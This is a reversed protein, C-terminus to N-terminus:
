ENSSVFSGILLNQMQLLFLISIDLNAVNAALPEVPDAVQLPVEDLVHDSAGEGVVGNAAVAAEAQVALDAELLGEGLYILVFSVQARVSLEGKVLTGEAVLGEAIRAVERLM